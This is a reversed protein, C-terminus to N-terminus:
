RPSPPSALTHACCDALVFSRGNFLLGGVYLLRARVAASSAARWSRGRAHQREVHEAAHGDGPHNEDVVGASPTRDVAREFVRRPVAPRRGVEYEGEEEEDDADRYREGERTSCLAIPALAVKVHLYDAAREDDVREAREEGPKREVVESRVGEYPKRGYAQRAHEVADGDAVEEGREDEDGR